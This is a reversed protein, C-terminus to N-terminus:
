DGFSTVEGTTLLTDGYYIKVTDGVKINLDDKFATKAMQIRSKNADLTIEGEFLPTKTGDSTEVSFDASELKVEKDTNNAFVLMLNPTEGVLELSASRLEAGDIELLAAKKAAGSDSASDTKTGCGALMASALVALILIAIIAPTFRKQKM